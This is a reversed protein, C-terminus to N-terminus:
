WVICAHLHLLQFLLESDDDIIFVVATGRHDDPVQVGSTPSPSPVVQLLFYEFDTREVENDTIIVDYTFTCFM